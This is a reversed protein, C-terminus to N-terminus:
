DFLKPTAMWRLVGQGPAIKEDFEVAAIAGKTFHIAGNRSGMLASAIQDVDPAHGVYAMQEATLTSCWSTLDTVDAGPSFRPIVQLDAPEVLRDALLEATQRCRLYPSTGIVQPALEGNTLQKVLRDFRKRGHNTLPRKSDDPYRPDGHEGAYAHRLIYLLM